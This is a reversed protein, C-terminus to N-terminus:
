NQCQAQYPKINQTPHFFTSDILEATALADKLFSRSVLESAAERIAVLVVELILLQLHVIRDSVRQLFAIDWVLLVESM